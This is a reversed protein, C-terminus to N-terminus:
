DGVIGRLLCDAGRGSLRLDYMRYKEARKEDFLDFDTKGVVESQEKGIM